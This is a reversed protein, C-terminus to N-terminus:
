NESAFENPFEALSIDYGSARLICLGIFYLAHVIVDVMLAIWYRDAPTNAYISKLLENIARLPKMFLM